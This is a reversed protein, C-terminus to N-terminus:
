PFTWQGARDYNEKWSRDGYSFFTKIFANVGKWLEGKDTGIDKWEGSGEMGEMNEVTTILVRDGAWPGEGRGCKAGVDFCVLFGATDGLTWSCYLLDPEYWEDLGNFEAVSRALVYERKTENCLVYDHVDPTFCCWLTDNEIYNLFKWVRTYDIDAAKEQVSRYGHLDLSKNEWRRTAGSDKSRSESGYSVGRRQVWEYGHTPHKKYGEADNWVWCAACGNEEPNWEAWESATYVHKPLAPCFTENILAVRHGAWASVGEISMQIDRM